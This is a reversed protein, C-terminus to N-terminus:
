TKLTCLTYKTKSMKEGNWYYVKKYNEICCGHKVIQRWQVTTSQTTVTKRYVRGDKDYLIISPFLDLNRHYYRSLSFELMYCILPKHRALIKEPFYERNTDIMIKGDPYMAKFSKKKRVYYMLSGNPWWAKEYQQGTEFRVIVNKNCIKIKHWGKRWIGSRKKLSTSNIQYFIRVSWSGKKILNSYKGYLTKVQIGKSGSVEVCEIINGHKIVMKTSTNTGNLCHKVNVIGNTILIYCNRGFSAGITQLRM